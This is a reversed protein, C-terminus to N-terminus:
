STSSVRRCGSAMQPAMAAPRTDTILRGRHGCVAARMKPEINNAFRGHDDTAATRATGRTL